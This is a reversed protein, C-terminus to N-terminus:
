RDPRDGRGANVALVLVGVVAVVAAGVWLTTPQLLWRHTGALGIVAVVAFVAAWVLGGPDIRRGPAPRTPGSDAM